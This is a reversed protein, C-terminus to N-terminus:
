ERMCALFPWLYALYARPCILMVLVTMVTGPFTHVSRRSICARQPHNHQHLRIGLQRITECLEDSSDGTFVNTEFLALFSRPQLPRRRAPFRFESRSSADAIFAPLTVPCSVTTLELNMRQCDDRAPPRMQNRKKSFRFSIARLEVESAAKMSCSRRKAQLRRTRQEPFFSFITTSQIRIQFAASSFFLPDLAPASPSRAVPM